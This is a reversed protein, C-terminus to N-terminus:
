PYLSSALMKWTVLLAQNHFLYRMLLHYVLGRALAEEGCNGQGAKTPPLGATSGANNMSAPVIDLLWTTLQPSEM